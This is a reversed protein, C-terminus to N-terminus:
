FAVGTVGVTEQCAWFPKPCPTSFYVTGAFEGSLSFDCEEMRLGYLAASATPFLKVEYEHKKLIENRPPVALFL